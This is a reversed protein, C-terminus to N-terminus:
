EIPIIKIKIPKGIYKDLNYLKAIRSPIPIIYRNSTKTTKWKKITTYFETGENETDTEELNITIVVPKGTEYYERLETYRILAAPLRILGGKMIKVPIKYKSM